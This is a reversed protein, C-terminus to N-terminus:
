VQKKEVALQKCLKEFEGKRINQGTRLDKGTSPIFPYFTIVNEVTIM